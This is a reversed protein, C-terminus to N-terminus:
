HPIIAIGLVLSAHCANFIAHAVVPWRLSGTKAYVIAWIFGMVLSGFLITAIRQPSLGFGFVLPVSVGYLVASFSAARLMPWGEGSAADMLTARYYMEEYLPTVIALCLVLLWTGANGITVFKAYIAFPIAVLAPLLALLPWGIPGRAGAFWRGYAEWGGLIVIALGLFVLYSVTGAIWAAHPELKLRFALAAAFSLGVVVVPSWLAAPRDNPM